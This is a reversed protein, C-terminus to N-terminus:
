HSGPRASSLRRLAFGIAVFASAVALLALLDAGTFPLGSVAESKVAGGGDPGPGEGAIAAPPTAESHEEAIPKVAGETPNCYQAATPDTAASSCDNAALVPGPVALMLALTLGAAIVSRFILRILGNEATGIV